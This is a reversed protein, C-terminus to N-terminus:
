RRDIAVAEPRPLVRWEEELRGEAVFRIRGQHIHIDKAPDLNTGGAFGFQLLDATARELKMLPQNGM